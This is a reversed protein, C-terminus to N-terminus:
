FRQMSMSDYFTLVEKTYKEFKGSYTKDFDTKKGTSAFDQKKLLDKFFKLEKGPIVMDLDVSLRPFHFSSVAYGGVLVYKRNM